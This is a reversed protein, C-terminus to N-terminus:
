QVKAVYSLYDGASVTQGFTVTLFNTSPSCNSIWQAAGGATPHVYNLAVVSTSTLGGVVTSVAYPATPTAPLQITGALMSPIISDKLTWNTQTPLVSM